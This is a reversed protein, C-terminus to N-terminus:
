NNSSEGFPNATHQPILEKGKLAFYLNQLTHVFEIPVDSLLEIGGNTAYWKGNQFVMPFDDNPLGFRVLWEETLPVPNIMEESFSGNFKKDIGKGIIADERVETVALTVIPLNFINQFYNGIRLETAKIM